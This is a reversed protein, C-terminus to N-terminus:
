SDNDKVEMEELVSFEFVESGLRNWDNQLEINRHSGLKLQFIDSNFARDLDTSTKLLVKNGSLNKIQYIGKRFTMQKYAKKDEKKSNM